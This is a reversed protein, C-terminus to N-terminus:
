RVLCTVIEFCLLFWIEIRKWLKTKEKFQQDNGNARDIESQNLSSSTSSPEFILQIAQNKKKLNPRFYRPFIYLKQVVFITVQNLYFM